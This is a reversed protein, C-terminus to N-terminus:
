RSLIIGAGTWQYIEWEKSMGKAELNKWRNWPDPRFITVFVGFNQQPKSPNKPMKMASLADPSRSLHTPANDYFFAHDENAYHESLIAMAKQAQSLIDENTFYGECNKGPRFIVRAAEKGDPSRLWGYDASVFDAVMLSVGEGKTYPKPTADKHYWGTQRRDHAYFISEDHVWIVIAQTIGHPLDWGHNNVWTRMRHEYQEM